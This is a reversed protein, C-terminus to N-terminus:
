FYKEMYEEAKERTIKNTENLEDSLRWLGRKATMWEGDVYRFPETGNIVKIITEPVPPYGEAMQVYYEVTYPNERIITDSATGSSESLFGNVDAKGDLVLEKHQRYIEKIFSLNRDILEDIYEDPLEAERITIHKRVSALYDEFRMSEARNLEDFCDKWNDETREAFGRPVQKAAYPVPEKWEEWKPLTKDLMHTEEGSINVTYIREATEDLYYTVFLDKYSAVVSWYIESYNDSFQMDYLEDQMISLQKALMEIRTGDLRKVGENESVSLRLLKRQYAYMMCLLLKKSEPAAKRFWEGLHKEWDRDALIPGLEHVESLSDAVKNGFLDRIEGMDTDPERMIESLIGAILVQLNDFFLTHRGLAEAIPVSYTMLPLRDELIKIHKVVYIWASKIMIDSDYFREEGAAELSKWLLGKKIACVNQGRFIMIEDAAHYMLVYKIATGWFVKQANTVGYTELDMERCYVPIAKLGHPDTFVEPKCYDPADGPETVPVYCYRFYEINDAIDWIIRKEEDSEPQVHRENALHDTLNDM